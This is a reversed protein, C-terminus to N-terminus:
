EIIAGSSTSSKTEAWGTVIQPICREAEDGEAIPCQGNSKSIEVNACKVHEDMKEWVLGWQMDVLLKANAGDPYTFRWIACRQSAAAECRIGSGLTVAYYGPTALESSKDFSVPSRIGRAFRTASPSARAPTPVPFTSDSFPLILLDGLEPVGTGNMHNQSFGYLETDGNRYGSAYDWSETGTDPGAQVMGLPYAAAVTAHGNGETGIWPNVFAACDIAEVSVSGFAIACLACLMGATKM